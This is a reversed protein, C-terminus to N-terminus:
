FNERANRKLEKWDQAWFYRFSASPYLDFKKTVSTGIMYFGSLLLYKPLISVNQDSTILVNKKEFIKSM